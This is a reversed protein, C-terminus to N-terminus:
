LFCLKPSIDPLLLIEIEHSSAALSNRRLVRHNVRLNKKKVLTLTRTGAVVDRISLLGLLTM